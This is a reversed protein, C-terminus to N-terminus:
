DVERWFDAWDDDQAPAAPKGAPAKAAPAAKVVPPAAPAPAPGPATVQAPPPAVVVAPTPQNSTDAQPAPGLAPRMRRVEADDLVVDDAPEPGAARAEAYTEFESMAARCKNVNSNGRIAGGLYIAGISAPLLGIAPEEGAVAIAVLGLTMAMAGDLAVMAKSTDCKPMKSRPRDPDPGSLGFACGSFLVLVAAWRQM